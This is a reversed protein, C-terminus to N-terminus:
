ISNMPYQSSICSFKRVSTSCVPTRTLIRHGTVICNGWLFDLNTLQNNFSPWPHYHYTTTPLVWTFFFSFFLCGFIVINYRIACFVNFYAWVSHSTIKSWARLVNAKCRMRVPEPSLPYWSYRCRAHFGEGEGAADSARAQLSGKLLKYGTHLMDDKIETVFPWAWRIFMHQVTSHCLHRIRDNKQVLNTHVCGNNQCHPM